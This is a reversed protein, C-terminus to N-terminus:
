ASAGAEAAEDIMALIRDPSLPFSTVKAGLPALADAVANLVTSPAGIAGGEGVGKHGGPTPAPTELHAYRVDPIVDTTPMLYDKFTIALPNGADDYPAHELLAGGIGQAVGGMIQGEVIMPNIMVGCDEAVVYDLFTIEGTEVDVELTCLQTSNAWVSPPSSFRSTNELGPEMGEPLRGPENYAIRAVESFDITSGPSGKVSIVGDEIQLDEPAAELLHGAMEFVKERLKISSIRAAAGGVVASRSGATGGGYPAIATDGQLLRVDELPIGLQDAVVQIMTTELSHGHSGTGM